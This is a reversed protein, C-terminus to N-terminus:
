GPRQLVSHGQDFGYTVPGAETQTARMSAMRGFAAFGSRHVFPPHYLDVSNEVQFKWNGRYQYSHPPRVRLSGTPSLDAWLDIFRKAEGLYDELPEGRAGLNAFILGRYIGCRAALLGFKDKDRR